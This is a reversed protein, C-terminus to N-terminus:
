YLMIGKAAEPGTGHFLYFENISPDCPSSDLVDWDAANMMQLPEPKLSRRYVVLFAEIQPSLTSLVEPTVSLAATTADQAGMVLDLARPGLLGEM